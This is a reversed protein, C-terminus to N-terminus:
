YQEKEDPFSKAKVDSVYHKIAGNMVDNLNAYQRLFRPKFGKNIGLMDHIVLVQGDCHRLSNTIQIKSCYTSKDIHLAIESTQMHETLHILVASYNVHKLSNILNAVVGDLDVGIPGVLGFILEPNTVVVANDVVIAAPNVETRLNDQM